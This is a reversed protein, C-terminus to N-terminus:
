LTLVKTFKDTINTCQWYFNLKILLSHSHWYMISKSTNTLCNDLRNHLYHLFSEINFYRLEIFLLNRFIIVQTQTEFIIYLAQTITKVRPTKIMSTEVRNPLLESSFTCNYEFTSKWNSFVPWRQIKNLFHSCRTYILLYSINRIM